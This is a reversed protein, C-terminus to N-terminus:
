CTPLPIQGSQTQHRALLRVTAKFAETFAPEELGLCWLDTMVGDRAWVSAYNADELGLRNDGISAATFGLPTANKHLSETAKNLGEDCVDASAAAPAFTIFRDLAAILADGDGPEIRDVAWAEHGNDLQLDHSLFVGM